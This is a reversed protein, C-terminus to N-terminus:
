LASVESCPFRMSVMARFAQLSGDLSNCGRCPRSNNCKEDQPYKSLKRGIPKSFYPWFASTMSRRSSIGCEWEMWNSVSLQNKPSCWVPRHNRHAARIRLRTNTESIRSYFHMPNAPFMLYNEAYRHSVLHVAVHCLFTCWFVDLLLQSNSGVIGAVLATM